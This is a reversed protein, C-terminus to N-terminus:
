RGYKFKCKEFISKAVSKASKTPIPVTVLYKTLECVITIAYENRNESRPDFSILVIEFATVLTIFGWMKPARGPNLLHSGTQAFAFPNSCIHVINFM